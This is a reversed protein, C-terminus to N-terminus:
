GRVLVALGIGTRGYGNGNYLAFVQGEYQLPHAYCIMESDWGSPSVEIDLKHPERQWTMGDKSTATGIRYTDKGGRFSFWMYHLDDDRFVVPRAIAYEQEQYDLCLRCSTTWHAGDTSEAYKVTYYHKPSANPSDKLWKTGSTYWMRFKDEEYIVYPAGTVYPDYYGRDLVPADSYRNYTLGQDESIALGIHFSFPVTVTKTWGTYYMYKKGQYNVISSPMVGCDDFAGLSGLDITPRRSINLIQSPDKVHFDFYAGRARNHDDRPAFHVRYLGEALKEPFPNQAHTPMWDFAGPEFILGLKKWKSGKVNKM